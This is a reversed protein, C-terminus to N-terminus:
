SIEATRAGLRQGIRIVSPVAAADTVKTVESLFSLISGDLPGGVIAFDTNSLARCDAAVPQRSSNVVEIRLGRETLSVLSYDAGPHVYRGAYRRLLDTSVEVDAAEVERYGLVRETLYRQIARGLQGGSDSNALVAVAIGASPVLMLRSAYGKYSGGHHVILGADTVTVQWGLSQYGGVGEAPVAPRQLLQRSQPNIVSDSGVLPTGLSAAAFRLLDEVSALVGGSAIRARPFAISPVPVQGGPTPKHPLAIRHLVAEEATLATARMGLPELVRERLAQEYSRGTVTAILHGALWYGTNCYGWYQGLPAYQALRPYDGILRALADDNRGYSELDGRWEGELGSTHSLLHRLTLGRRTRPDALALDPLWSVIPTDLDLTGEEVLSMALTSTMPKTISCLRFLTNSTVERPDRVSTKGLGSAACAGNAVVGFAIGPTGTSQRLEEVRSGIEALLKDARLTTMTM